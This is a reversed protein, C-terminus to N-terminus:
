VWSITHHRIPGSLVSESFRWSQHDEFVTPLDSDESQSDGIDDDDSDNWDDAGAFKKKDREEADTSDIEGFAEDASLDSVEEYAADGPDSPNDLTDQEQNFM